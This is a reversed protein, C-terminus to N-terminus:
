IAIKAGSLKPKNTFTFGLYTPNKLRGSNDPVSLAEISLGTFKNVHNKYRKDFVSQIWLKGDKVAAKIEKFIGKERKLSSIIADRDNGYQKVLTMLKEHDVDPLTSGWTNIQNAIEELEENGFYLGETNKETTALVADMVIEETESNTIIKLEPEALEFSYINPIEFSESMAVWENNVKKFKQKVATWATAMAVSESAGSELVSNVVQMFMKQGSIPLVKRISEDIESINKYPMIVGM